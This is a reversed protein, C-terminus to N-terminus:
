SFPFFTFSLGGTHKMRGDLLLDGGVILSTCFDCMGYQVYITDIM